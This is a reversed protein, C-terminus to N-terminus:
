KRLREPGHDRWQNVDQDGANFVRRNGPGEENEFEESVAPLNGVVMAVLDESDEQPDCEEINEQDNRQAQDGVLDFSLHRYGSSSRTTRRARVLLAGATLFM